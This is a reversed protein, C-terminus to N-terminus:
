AETRRSAASLCICTSAVFLLALLVFHHSGLSPVPDAACEVVQQRSASIIQAHEDILESGPYFQTLFVGFYGIELDIWPTAGFAGPDTVLIATGDPQTADRFVGLGYGLGEKGAVTEVIPLGMTQDGFIEEVAEPTLVGQGDYRGNRLLMGIIRAYEPLTTRLAGAIRPNDTAGLGEYDTSELDLPAAIQTAFVDDWTTGSAVEAMRGAVHMSLGGYWYQAGHPAVLDICCAIHDVAEALTISDNFLIPHTTGGPLGTTMSLMQRLTMEGKEAAFQPLVSAVPADLSLLDEDVLSMLTAASVVKSASALPVITEPGWTGFYAEYLPPGDTRAIWVAAGSM